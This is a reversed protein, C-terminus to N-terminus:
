KAEKALVEALEDTEAFWHESEGVQHLKPRQTLGITPHSSRPAFRDGTVFERPSPVVGPVQHLRGEGEEISLVAGLLGRTYEHVPNILLERTPAQEVVQGAYMVTIRHAVKAVLALDHSVFVM